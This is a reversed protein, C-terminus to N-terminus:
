QRTEKKYKNTLQIKLANFLAVAATESIRISTLKVKGKIVTHAASPKDVDDMSKFTIGIDNDPLEHVLVRKNKWKANVSDTFVTVSLQKISEQYSM